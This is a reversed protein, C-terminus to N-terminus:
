KQCIIRFKIYALSFLGYSSIMKNQSISQWELCYKWVKRDWTMYKMDQYFHSSSKNICFKILMSLLNSNENEFYSMVLGRTLQLYLSNYLKSTMYANGLFNIQGWRRGAANTKFSLLSFCDGSSTPSPLYIIKHVKYSLVFIIEIIQDYFTLNRRSTEQHYQYGLSPWKFGRLITKM